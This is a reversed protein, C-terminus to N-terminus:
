QWKIQDMRFPKGHGPFVTTVNLKAMRKLTAAFEIEDPIIGAPRPSGRNELTDGSTLEGCGTLIAISGATHGPIHLVAADLGYAQLSQGEELDIDPKFREFRTVMKETSGTLRMIVHMMRMIPSTVKRKPRMEAGEVMVADGRHMAIKSQYKERFYAASGSHDIDGHTLIILKLNEPKCGASALSKELNGRSGPIGIDVLIFGDSTHILYCNVFGLNITRIVSTMFFKM